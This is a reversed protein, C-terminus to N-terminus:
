NGTKVVMGTDRDYSVNYSISQMYDYFSEVNERETMKETCYETARCPIMQWTVYDSLDEAGDVIAADLDITACLFATRSISANFVFNGLSYFIPKGKYFETGQLVHPHSGIIADAGCDILLQALSREYEEPREAREVGWHLYVMLYDCQAAKEEVIQALYDPDYAPLMGPQRNLVNWQVTPYVRSAALFGLTYGNTEVTIMEAAREVTEGAGMYDISAGDLTRFTDSLAETGYDLAHNNALSALDVGMENLLTVNQPDARFTYTKDQKTGGTSFCFEHNIVTYDAGTLDQLLAEGIIGEVGYARYTNEVGSQLCVDGTYVITYPPIKGMPQESGVVADELMEVSIDTDEATESEQPAFEEVELMMIDATHPEGAGCGSLLVIIGLIYLLLCQVWINRKQQNERKGSLAAGIRNSSNKLDM